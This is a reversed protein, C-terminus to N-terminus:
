DLIMKKQTESLFACHEPRGFLRIRYKAFLRYCFDSFGRPILSLILSLIKYFGGLEKGINLMARSYIFIDGNQYFLISDIDGLKRDLNLEQYTNGGIPAMFLSTKKDKELIFQVTKNCVLCDSDFFVIKKDM